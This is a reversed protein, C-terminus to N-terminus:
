VEVARTPDIPNILIVRDWGHHPIHIAEWVWVGYFIRDILVLWWEPYKTRIGSIKATKEDICIRVNRELHSVVWAGSDEGDLWGM